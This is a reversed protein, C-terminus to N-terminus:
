AGGGRDSIEQKMAVPISAAASYLGRQAALARWQRTEEPTEAARLGQLIEDDTLEPDPM